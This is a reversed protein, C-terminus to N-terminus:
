GRPKLEWLVNVIKWEEGFRAIHLYDYWGDMELKVTAANGVVHQVEVEKIQREEPTRSGGGAGTMKILQDASMSQLETKGDPQSVARRKALDPHLARSMREASGEYWGEAYDLAAAVIAKEDADDIRADAPGQFLATSGTLMVIAVPIVTSRM